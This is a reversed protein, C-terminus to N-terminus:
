SYNLYIIFKSAYKILINYINLYQQWLKLYFMNYFYIHVIFIIIM